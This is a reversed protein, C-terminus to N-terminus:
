PSYVCGPINPDYAELYVTKYVRENPELRIDACGMYTYPNAGRTARVLLVADYEYNFSVEGKQNTYGLKDVTNGQVPTFVEVAVNNVAVSDDYTKVIITFPYKPNLDEKKCSILFAISLMLIPLLLTKKM